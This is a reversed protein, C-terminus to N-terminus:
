LSWAVIGSAPKGDLMKNKEYIRGLSVWSLSLDLLGNFLVTEQWSTLLKM